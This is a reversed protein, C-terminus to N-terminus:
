IFDFNNLATENEEDLDLGSNDVVSGRRQTDLGTRAERASRRGSPPQPLGSDVSGRRTNTDNAERLSEGLQFRNQFAVRTPDANRQSQSNANFFRRAAEATDQDGFNPGSV